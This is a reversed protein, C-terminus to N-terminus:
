VHAAQMVMAVNEAATALQVSSLHAYIATTSMQRHGLLSQVVQLNQVETLPQHGGGSGGQVLYSAYSHRLSHIVIGSDIKAAKLIRAFAKKPDGL